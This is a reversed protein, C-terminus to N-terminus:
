AAQDIADPDIKPELESAVNIIVPSPVVPEARCDGAETVAAEEPQRAADDLTGDRTTASKAVGEAIQVDLPMTNSETKAPVVASEEGSVAVPPMGASKASFESQRKLQIFEELTPLTLKRQIENRAADRAYTDSLSRWSNPRLRQEENVKAHRIAEFEAENAHIYRDVEADCHRQYEWELEQRSDEEAERVRAERERDQRTKRM